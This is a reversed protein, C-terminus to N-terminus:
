LGFAYLARESDVYVVGNAVSPSVQVWGGLGDVFFRTGTWADVVYLRPGVVAYVVGGAVVPAAFTMSLTGRSWVPAGTAADFACLGVDNSVYVMGYAVAPSADNLGLYVSTWVVAGSGADLAVLSGDNVVYVLGDHAVPDTAQQMPVSWRVRGTAADLSRVENFDSEFVAGGSVALESGAYPASWLLAGDSAALAYTGDRSAVYVVGGTVTPSWVGAGLDHSWIEQGTAPVLAYLRDGGSYMVGGRIAPTGSSGSREWVVAGDSANLAADGSLLLGGWVAFPGDWDGMEQQVWMKTLGGVNSANLVNEFPNYGTHAADFAFQQWDTRVVFRARDRLGSTQGTASVLHDGPLASQPVRFKTRFSGTADTQDIRIAAGDFSVSVTEAAGFGSGAVVIRQTPPGHRPSLLIAPSQASAPLSLAVVVGLATVLALFSRIPRHTSSSM